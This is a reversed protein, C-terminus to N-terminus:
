LDDDPHIVTVPYGAGQPGRVVPSLPYRCIIKSTLTATNHVEGNSRSGASSNRDFPLSISYNSFIIRLLSFRFQVFLSLHLPYYNRHFPHTHGLQHVIVFPQPGYNHPPLMCTNKRTLCSTRIVSLRRKRGSSSSRRSSIHSPDTARTKKSPSFQNMGLVSPKLNM